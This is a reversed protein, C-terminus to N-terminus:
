QRPAFAQEAGPTNVEVRSVREETDPTGGRSTTLMTPFRIGGFSRYASLDTRVIMRDLRDMAYQFAVPVCTRADALLTGRFGYPGSADIALREQGGDDMVRQSLTVGALARPLRMLMERMFQLRAHRTADPTEMRRMADPPGMGSLIADGDFGTTSSLTHGTVGPPTGVHARKYRDPFIVSMEQRGPIPRSGTTAVPKTDSVIRLSSVGAFARVGGLANQICALGPAPAATQSAAQPDATQVEATQPEAQTPSTVPETPPAPATDALADEDVITHDPTPGGCSTLSLSLSTTLAALAVVRRARM